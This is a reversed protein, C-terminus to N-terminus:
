VYFYRFIAVYIYCVCACMWIILSFSKWVISGHWNGSTLRQSTEKDSVRNRENRKWSHNLRHTVEDPHTRLTTLRNTQSKLARHLHQLVTLDSGGECQLWVRLSGTRLVTLGNELIFYCAIKVWRGIRLLDFRSKRFSRAVCGCPCEYGFINHLTHYLLLPPLSSWDKVVGIGENNPHGRVYLYFPSCCLLVNLIAQCYFLRGPDDKVLTDYYWRFVIHWAPRKEDLLCCWLSPPSWSSCYEKNISVTSQMENPQRVKRFTLVFRLHTMRLRCLWDLEASSGRSKLYMKLNGCM